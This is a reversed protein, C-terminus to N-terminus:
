KQSRKKKKPKPPIDLLPQQATSYKLPENSAFKWAYASRMDVARKLLSEARRESLGAQEAAEMIAAKTRAESTVFTSVFRASNWPAEPTVEQRDAHESPKRRVREPRLAAPDLDPAVQFVPFDWRMAVPDIPAWSRVAADLVVAKHEEHARLVLHTDTARSQSGAGAGVDTVSKTSQSGKTAHHILVFSCGLHHAYADLHNYMMAVSGNDNEDTDRPIFRYWADLIIIKFRNPEIAKFYPGLAMLDRLQGRLNEIYVAQAVEELPIDRANAVKPIRNASTEGHLENDIILVQGAETPFLNLWRRGTAVALALDTVLWSKGAKPPAIVNMTEGRRLLGHIVPPRLQPYEAILQGVSKFSPVAPEMAVQNDLVRQDDGYGEKRLASAAASYDGNHELLTYVQFKSYGRNLDFPPAGSTFCYFVQGNYTASWGDEKGPRRWHQNDGTRALTWGHRTLLDRVDGRTNFDDGPRNGTAPTVTPTPAMEVRENFSRACRLLVEREPATLVPLHEFHGQEIVYGPSPACLFLGGEGRTEILTPCYEYCEGVKRTAYTKGRYIASEPDPAVCVKEALKMSGPVPGDFRYAVHKGASQSREIVLRDVLGPAEAEVLERWAAFAEGQCDFDIMEVNGSVAGAVICIAKYYGDSFWQCADAESPRRSQYPKWSAISPRKATLNAPLVCLGSSLYSHAATDVESIKNLTVM